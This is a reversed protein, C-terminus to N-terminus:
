AHTFKIVGRNYTHDFLLRTNFDNLTLDSTSYGRTRRPTDLGAIALLSSIPPRSVQVLYLYLHVCEVLM